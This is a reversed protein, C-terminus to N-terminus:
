VTTQFQFNSQRLYIRQYCFADVYLILQEVNRIFRANKCSIEVFILMLWQSKYSSTAWCLQILLALLLCWSVRQRRTAGTKASREGKRKQTTARKSDQMYWGSATLKNRGFVVFLPYLCTRCHLCHTQKASFDWRMLEIRKAEIRHLPSCCQVNQFFCALYTLLFHEEFM